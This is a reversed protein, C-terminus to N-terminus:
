PALPYGRQAHLNVPGRGALLEVRARRGLRTLGGRHDHQAAAVLAELHQEHLAIGARPEHAARPHERAAGHSPESSAVVRGAHALDGLLRADRQGVRAREDRKERQIVGGSTCIRNSM